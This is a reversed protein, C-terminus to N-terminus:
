CRMVCPLDPHTSRLLEWRERWIADCRTFSDFKASHARFLPAHEAVQARPLPAAFEVSLAVSETGLTQTAHTWGPFWVLVDGPELITTWSTDRLGQEGGDDLEGRQEVGHLPEAHSPKM